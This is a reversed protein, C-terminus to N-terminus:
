LHVRLDGGANSTRTNQGSGSPTPRSDRTSGSTRGGLSPWTTASGNIRSSTSSSVTATSRTARITSGSTSRTSPDRRPRSRSSSTTKTTSSQASRAQVSVPRFADSLVDLVEGQRALSSEIVARLGGTIASDVADYVPLGTDTRWQHVDWFGVDITALYSAMPERAEWELDDRGLSPRSRAPLRQRSGRVRGARHGRLLVVGQGASPREGPFWSAAVEPARRRHSWGPDGHLGDQDVNGASSSSQCAATSSRSTSATGMWWRSRRRSPSSRAAALGALGSTTWKSEISRSGSSTSTSAACARPRRQEFRRM